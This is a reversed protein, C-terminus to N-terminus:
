RNEFARRIYTLNLTFGPVASSAFADGQPPVEEFRDGQLRLFTMTGADPDVLWYERVGARAYDARKTVLDLQRTSPSLVEVVLDARTLRGPTAVDASGQVFVIDPRYTLYRGVFESLDLDTEHFLRGLRHSLLYSGILTAIITAIEQHRPTPSPSICVLGDILEYRYGDPELEMYEAATMRLGHYRPGEITQM